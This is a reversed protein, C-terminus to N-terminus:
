CSYWRYPDTKTGNGLRALRPHVGGRECKKIKREVTSRSDGTREIVQNATLAADSMAPFMSMFEVLAAEEAAEKQRQVLEQAEAENMTVLGTEDEKVYLTPRGGDRTQIDLEATDSTRERSINWLGDTNAAVAANGAYENRSRSNHHLLFVAWGSERSFQRLPALVRTMVVADNEEGAKLNGMFATRLPDVIIVGHDGALHAAKHLREIVEQMYATTVTEPISSLDPTWFRKRLGDKDGEDRLCRAIRGRVIRERLRDANIFLTPVMKVPRGLFPKGTALCAIMYAALTTKGSYPLGSCLTLTSFELLGNIIWEEQQGDAIRELDDWGILNVDACNMINNIRRMSELSKEVGKRYEGQKFMETYDAYATKVQQAMGFEQLKEMLYRRSALGPVFFGYTADIEARYYLKVAEDKDKVANLVEQEVCFREPLGGHNKHITFLQKAIEAHAENTWYEPRLFRTAKGLFDADVLLSGLIRRQFGEDWVMKTSPPGADPDVLGDLIRQQEPSFQTKFQEKVENM